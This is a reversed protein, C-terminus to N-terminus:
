SSVRFPRLQAAAQRIFNLSARERECIRSPAQTSLHAGRDEGFLACRKDANIPWRLLNLFIAIQSGCLTAPPNCLVPTDASPRDGAALRAEVEDSPRGLNRFYVHPLRRLSRYALQERLM